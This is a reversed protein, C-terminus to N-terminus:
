KEQVLVYVADSNKSVTTRKTIVGEDKIKLIDIVLRRAILSERARTCQVHKFFFTIFVKILCALVKIVCM